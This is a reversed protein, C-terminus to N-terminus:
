GVPDTQHKPPRPPRSGGAIGRAGAPFRPFLAPRQAEPAIGLTVRARAAGGISVSASGSPNGPTDVAAPSPPSVTPSPLVPPDDDVRTTVRWLFAGLAILALAVALAIVRRGLRTPDYRRGPIPWVTPRTLDAASPPEDLAPSDPERVRLSLLASRMEAPSRFNGPVSSRALFDELDRSQSGESLEGGLLRHLLAGVQVLDEAAEPSGRALARTDTFGTIKVRGDDMVMVRSPRLDGHAVGADHAHGLADLVDSCWALAQVPSVNGARAIAALNEGTVVESVVFPRGEDAGSDLVRAIGPHTLAGVARARKVIDIPLPDEPDDTTLEVLVAQSNSEDIASYTTGWEHSSIEEQLRYRDGVLESPAVM